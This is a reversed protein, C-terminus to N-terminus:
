GLKGERIGYKRIKYSVQRPTLGLMRAARTQVWGVRNLAELLRRRDIEDLTDPYAQGRDGEGTGVRRRNEVGTVHQMDTFYARLAPPITSFTVTEQEALVVLREVCSQLERVNGPWHYRGMLARVESGIVVNRRNERNSHALFHDILLPIDARRERLPPLTIPVVNLRYYLDERFAGAQVMGELDRHTASIVRVDVALRRTGGVREFCKDQLVRLLKVQTTPPIDGIEDLFLTGGHAAEFRGRRLQVAGTFAGREHGFLESELLTEAVAACHFRVFPGGARLGTRHIAEAVLEKGTGSEGRLLVAAQGHSVRRIAQYVQQMAESRGVLAPHPSPLAPPGSGADLPEPRDEPLASAPELRGRVEGLRAELLTVARSVRPQPPAPARLAALVAELAAAEERLHREVPDMLDRVLDGAASNGWLFLRWDAPSPV